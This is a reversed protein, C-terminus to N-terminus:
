ERFEWYAKGEMDKRDLDRQDPPNQELILKYLDSIVTGSAGFYSHGLLDARVKSADITDIGDAILVKPKSDGARQYKHVTESLGLAVDKSSAYLTYRKAKGNFAKALDIFTDKDVDPAAFVIENLTAADAPLEDLRFDALNETLARNGMSHAIVNVETAGLETMVMRLFAMLHPRTWFINSEDVTYKHTSGESPWSYLMTLGAFNLDYAVQAARELASVFTVNYGHIFILVQKKDGAMQALGSRTQSVFEDRDLPSISHLMVHKEPTERFQLRFWKPKEIEGMQHDDPISVEAMGFDLSGNGRNGTYSVAAGDERERDTAYYIPIKLYREFKKAGVIEGGRPMSEFGEDDFGGRTGSESSEERRERAEMLEIQFRGAAESDKFLTEIEALTENDDYSPDDLRRMLVLLRSEFAEWDAGLLEPLDSWLALIAELTIDKKEM